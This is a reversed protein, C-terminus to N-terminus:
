PSTNLLHLFFFLLFTDALLHALLLTLLSTPLSLLSAIFQESSFLNISWEFKSWFLKNKNLSKIQSKKKKKKKM